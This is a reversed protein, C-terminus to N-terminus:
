DKHGAIDHMKLYTDFDDKNIYHSDSTLICKIKLKKALQMLKINVAEQLGKETLKYPQIEIYYDDGFVDKFRKAVNYAVDDKGKLILTSIAGGICASTCIGRIHLWEARM